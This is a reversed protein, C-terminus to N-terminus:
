QTEKTCHFQYCTAVLLWLAIASFEQLGVLSSWGVIPILDPRVNTLYTAGLNVLCAFTGCLFVTIPKM